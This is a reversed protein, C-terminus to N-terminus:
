PAKDGETLVAADRASPPAPCPFDRCSPDMCDILGDADNDFTDACGTADNECAGWALAQPDYEAPVCEGAAIYVDVQFSSCALPNPNTVAPVGADEAAPGEADSGGDSGADSLAQTPQVPSPRTVEFFLRGWGAPMEAPPVPQITAERCDFTGVYESLRGSVKRTSVSSAGHELCLAEVLDTWM